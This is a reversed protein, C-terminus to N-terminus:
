CFTSHKSHLGLLNWYNKNLKSPYLLDLLGKNRQQNMLMQSWVLLKQLKRILKVNKRKHTVKSGTHYKLDIDNQVKVQQPMRINTQVQVEGQNRCITSYINCPLSEQLINQSSDDYVIILMPAIAGSDENQNSVNEHSIGKNMSVAINHVKPAENINANKLNTDIASSQNKDVIGCVKENGM